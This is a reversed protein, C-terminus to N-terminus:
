SKPNDLARRYAAASEIDLEPDDNQKEIFKLFAQYSKETLILSEGSSATVRYKANPKDNIEETAYFGEDSVDTVSRYLNALQEENDPENAEYFEEYDVYVKPEEDM